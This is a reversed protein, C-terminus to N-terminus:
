LYTAPYLRRLVQDGVLLVLEGEVCRVKAFWPARNRGNTMLLLVDPCGAFYQERYLGGTAVNPALVTGQPDVFRVALCGDVNEDCPFPYPDPAFLKNETVSSDVDIPYKLLSAAVWTYEGIEPIDAVHLDFVISWGPDLTVWFWRTLPGMSNENQIVLRFTRRITTPNRIENEWMHLMNSSLADTFNAFEGGEFSGAYTPPQGGVVPNPWAPIGPWRKLTDYGPNPNLDFHVTDGHTPLHAAYATGSGILAALAAVLILTVFGSKAM